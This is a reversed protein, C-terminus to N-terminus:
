RAPAAPVAPRSRPLWALPRPLQWNRQGLLTMAAPLVIGRVTTADILVASAMGVGFMKFDIVSLTAFISSVAVMIIAAGTVVGAGSSIGGTIASTTSAGRIRLERIRSLIFVQYDMSLGFLLVFMFLPLYPIIGRLPHLRAPTGPPRGPLDTEAPRLRRWRVAAEARDRHSSHGPLPLRTTRGSCGSTSLRPRQKLIM